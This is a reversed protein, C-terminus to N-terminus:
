FTSPMLYVFDKLQYVFRLLFLFCANGPYTVQMSLNFSFLYLLFAMPCM